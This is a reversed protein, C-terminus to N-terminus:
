NASFIAEWEERNIHEKLKFRLDLMDDNYRDLTAYHKAWLADIQGATSEHNRFTKELGKATQKVKKYHETAKKKMAKLVTLAEDQREGEAMVIEVSDKIDAIYDLMAGSGGGLFYITFLAILM